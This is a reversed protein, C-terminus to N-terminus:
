EGAESGGGEGGGRGLGLSLTAPPEPGRAPRPREPWFRVLLWALLGAVAHPLVFLGGGLMRVVVLVYVLLLPAAWRWFVTRKEWAFAAAFLPLAVHPGLGSPAIVLAGLELVCALVFGRIFALATRGHEYLYPFFAGTM